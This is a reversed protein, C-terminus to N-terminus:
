NPQGTSSSGSQVGGHTHTELVVGNSTINGGENTFGNKMTSGSSSDEGTQIFRGTFEVLPTEFRIKEPAHVIVTGEQQLEIWVEPAQNLFGGIYFGDAMDFFRFSGPQVPESTGSAINSTDQQAFVALGIDGKVPDAVVAVSGGQYRFYPLDFMQATQLANGDGDRQTVLARASLRGAPEGPGAAEIETVVVPIATNVLGKIMSEVLFAIANVPTNASSSRRTGKLEQAM